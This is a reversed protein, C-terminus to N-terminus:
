AQGWTPAAGNPDIRITWPPTVPGEKPVWKYITAQTAAAFAIILMAHSMEQHRVIATCVDPRIFGTQEARSAL